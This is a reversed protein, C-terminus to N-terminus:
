PMYQYAGMDPKTNPPTPRPNNLIDNFNPSLNEGNNIAPSGVLINLKNKNINKFKPDQNKINGFPNAVDRIFNYSTDNALSTGADNFKILCHDFNTNFQTTGKKDLILEIQNSGYIICNKFNAQTLDLPVPLNNADVYYNDVRVAYQKSSAWNNNFTCHTFDYTGGMSCWLSALGASNIVLNTGTIDANRALIGVNSCGYFQSNDIKLKPTTTATNRQIYLGIAANKLTLHNITNNAGSFLLVTGWQGPTDEFGPELRDGEFTVERRNIIEGETNTDNLQGEIKLTAGNDVVLGSDAHFYVRTGEGITLTSGTPVAAYGYVVYPKQNTWNLEANTILTHGEAGVLGITSLTEKPGNALPRDPKIFIADQILTVLEVKQPIGSINSFEIKDTYLFDTPNADAIEATTEIFIYLSDKALLEVNNFIKGEGTGNNDADEGTMGDVTIRYKSTTGKGLQIKPINIDKDSRNYVKLTYTSSGINTFVTDLYVTEKSFELNGTSPEFDFDKRCSTMSIIVGIFLIFISNRM